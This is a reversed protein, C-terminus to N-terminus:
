SCSSLEQVFCEKISKEFSNKITILQLDDFELIGSIYKQSYNDKDTSIKSLDVKIYYILYLDYSIIGYDYRKYKNIVGSIDGSYKKIIKPVDFEIIKDKIMKGYGNTISLIITCM